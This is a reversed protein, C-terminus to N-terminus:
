GLMNWTRLAITLARAAHKILTIYHAYDSQLIYIPLTVVEHNNGMRWLCSMHHLVNNENSVYICM